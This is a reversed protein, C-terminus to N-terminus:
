STFALPDHTHPQGSIYLMVRICFFFFDCFSTLIHTPNLSLDTQYDIRHGMANYWQASYLNCSYLKLHSRGELRNQPTEPTDGISKLVIKLMLLKCVFIHTLLNPVLNTSLKLPLLVGIDREESFNIYCLRM